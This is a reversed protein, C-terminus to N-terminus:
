LRGAGWSSGTAYNYEVIFKIKVVFIDRLIDKEPATPSDWGIAKSAHLDLFAMQAM